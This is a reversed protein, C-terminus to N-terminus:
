CELASGRRVFHRKDRKREVFRSLAMVAREIAQDVAVALRTELDEVVIAPSRKVCIEIACRKDVGGRPGNVDAVRISVRRIVRDFRRLTAVVQGGIARLMSGRLRMHHQRIGSITQLQVIVAPTICFLDHRFSYMQISRIQSPGDGRCEVCALVDFVM